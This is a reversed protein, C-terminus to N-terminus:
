NAGASKPYATFDWVYGDMMGDSRLLFVGETGSRLLDVHYYNGDVCVLNWNWPAGERTGAIVQCELGAKACMAAYVTAFAKSDGVSHCLLSYAPTISTELKYDSREMLFDMLFAYLQAYKQQQNEGGSAFLVASSFVPRVQEQMQRLNERSNQYSFRLEVVREAGLNPYVKATVRPTEMVMQPNEAAYNEVFQVFDMSEYNDLHLVVGNECSDLASAIAKKASDMDTMKQIKQIESRPHLYTLTVAVAAQGNSTGREYTIEEVAYAAIPDRIMVERIAKRIDYEANNQNYHPMFILQSQVGNRALNVLIQRLQEYREASVVTSENKGGTAEHPQINHYNGDLLNSCGSLLLCIALLVPLFRRM